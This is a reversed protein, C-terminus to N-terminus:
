WNLNFDLPIMVGDDTYGAARERGSAHQEILDVRRMRRDYDYPEAMRGIMPRAPQGLYDALAGFDDASSIQPVNYHAM